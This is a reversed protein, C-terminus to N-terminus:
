PNWNEWTSIARQHGSQEYIKVRLEKMKKQINRIEQRDINGSSEMKILQTEYGDYAQELRRWNGLNVTTAKEKETSKSSGKIKSSSNGSSEVIASGANGYSSSVSSSSGGVLQSVGGIIGGLIGAWDPKYSNALAEERAYDRNEWGCWMGDIRYGLDLNAKIGDLGEKEGALLVKQEKREGDSPKDFMVHYSDYDGYKNYFKGSSSVVWGEDRRKQIGNIFDNDNRYCSLSAVCQEINDGHGNQVLVTGLSVFTLYLGKANLKAIKDKLSSSKWVKVEELYQVTTAPNKDFVAYKGDKNYYSLSWGDKFTKKLEKKLAYSPIKTCMQPMNEVNPVSVVFIGFKTPTVSKIYRGNKILKEIEDDGEQGLLLESFVDCRVDIGDDEVMSVVFRGDRHENDQSHLFMVFCLLLSVVFLKKM